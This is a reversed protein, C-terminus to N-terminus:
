DSNKRRNISVVVEGFKVNLVTGSQSYPNKDSGQLQVVTRGPRIARMSVTAIHSDGAVGRYSSFLVDSVLGAENNIEGASNVFSWDTGNMTVQVAQLMKPDFKVTFGGGEIAPFDTMNVQITFVDGTAVKIKDEGFGVYPAAQACVVAQLMFLLFIQKLKKIIM